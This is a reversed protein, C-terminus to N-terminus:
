TLWLSVNAIKQARRRIREEGGDDKMEETTKTVPVNQADILLRSSM